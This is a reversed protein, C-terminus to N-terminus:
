AEQVMELCAAVNPPKLLHIIELSDKTWEKRHSLFGHHDRCCPLICLTQLGEPPPAVANALGVIVRQVDDSYLCVSRLPLFVNFCGLTM